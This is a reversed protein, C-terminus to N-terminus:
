ILKVFVVKHQVIGRGLSPNGGRSFWVRACLDGPAEVQDLGEMLPSMQTQSWINTTCSIGLM